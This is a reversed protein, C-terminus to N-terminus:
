FHNKFIVTVVVIWKFVFSSNDSVKNIDKPTLSTQALSEHIPELFSPLLQTILMDIRARSVNTSMDVGEHLSEVFCHATHLTSLIHKCEEAASSLKSM